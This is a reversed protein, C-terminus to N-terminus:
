CKCRRWTTWVYKDKYRVNEEASSVYTCYQCVTNKIFQICSCYNIEWSFLAWISYTEFRFLCYVPCHTPKNHLRKNHTVARHCFFSFRMSHRSLTQLIQNRCLRFSKDWKHISIEISLKARHLTRLGTALNTRSHLPWESIKVGIWQSSEEQM